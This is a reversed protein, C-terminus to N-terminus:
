AQNRKIRAALAAVLPNASVGHAIVSLIVTCIVTIAMINGGPLHENLVIVGFVISALGRPGFWGMFLKEAPSLDTGALVVFVPVMRIVTLSLLAYLLDNWSFSGIASGVVGAGFIVWTLLSLTDGASEASVLLAKKQQKEMRGFLLGGTFAAIFGSGGLIQALSFCVFALAVVPLRRWDETMWDRRDALKLLVIGLATVGFGVALGIGIEEAVLQFALMISKDQAGETALAIFIFLIPVCIGDNLGSELNLSERIRSPVAEDTVVAEGLAADTPALMTALIAIEVLTLGDFMLAGLGFGILITLPLGFLLLRVPLSVFQKLVRFNVKAADTFLVVALTLEAILRMGEATVDLNLLGAGIPGFLLGFATFVIAGSFPTRELGKSCVSYILVFAALLALNTYM